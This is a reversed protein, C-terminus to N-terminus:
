QDLQSLARFIANHELTNQDNLHNNNKTEEYIYHKETTNLHSGKGTTHLIEMTNDITGFPHQNQLLHKSSNCNYNNNHLAQLHENFQTLFEKWNTWCTTQM